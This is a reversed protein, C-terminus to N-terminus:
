SGLSDATTVRTMVYYDRQHSTKTTFKRAVALDPIFRFNFLSQGSLSRCSQDLTPSKWSPEPFNALALYERCCQPTVIALGKYVAGSACDDVALPANTPFNGNITSWTSITGDETAFLFQAPTGRVLFDQAIPNSV